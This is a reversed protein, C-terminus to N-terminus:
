AEFYYYSGTNYVTITQNIELKKFADDSCNSISLLVFICFLIKMLAKKIRKYLYTFLTKM